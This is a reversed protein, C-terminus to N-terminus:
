KLNRIIPRIREAAAREIQRIPQNEVLKAARLIAHISEHAQRKPTVAV